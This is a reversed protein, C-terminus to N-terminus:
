PPSILESPAKTATFPLPNNPDNPDTWDGTMYTSNQLTGAFTYITGSIDQLITVSNGRQQWTLAGEFWSNAGYPFPGSNFEDVDGNALFRVGTYSSGNNFHFLWIGLTFPSQGPCGSMPVLVPVMLM